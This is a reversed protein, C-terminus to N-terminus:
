ISPYETPCSIATIKHANSIDYHIGLWIIITTVDINENTFIFQVITQCLCKEPAVM